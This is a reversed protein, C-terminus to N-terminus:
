GVTSSEPADGSLDRRFIILGLILAAGATLFLAQFGALEGIYGLIISGVFAGADISGTYAGTIKGRIARSEGRIARVNLAPYLLGHGCGTMFGCALLVLSGKMFVMALLGAGTLFLAYPIVRDEGMRDAIGGGLLRTVIAAASYFIYYLSIFAIRREYAYPAVFGNVAALGIGFLLAVVAIMFIRRKRLVVFFSSDAARFVHVYTEKLFFQIALGVGAMASAVLFLPDFGSERIVIEAIVPGIAAGILGSIGFMGLGENLREKPIVDAIYTFAATICIAFGVGHVVRVLILPLYFGRLNGDFFLYALPLLTMVLSGLAYSKKRGIRDIMNSIWPRCLVSALLFAGMIIGIDVQDGNHSTIFLPFMFFTSFSSLCSLNAVALAFFTPSYLM